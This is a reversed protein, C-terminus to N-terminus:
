PSFFVVKILTGAILTIAAGVLRWYVKTETKHKTLAESSQKLERIDTAHHDLRTTQECFKIFKENTKTVSETLIKMNDRIPALHEKLEDRSVPESM